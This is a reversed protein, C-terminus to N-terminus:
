AEDAAWEGCRGIGSGNARDMCRVSVGQGAERQKAATEGGMELEERYELARRSSEAYLGDQASAFQEMERTGADNASQVQAVATSWSHDQADTFSVIMSTLNNVLETRLKTTKSKEEALM